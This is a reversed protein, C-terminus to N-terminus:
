SSVTRVTSLMQMENMADFAIYFIFHSSYRFYKNNKKAFNYTEYQLFIDFKPTPPQSLLWLFSM